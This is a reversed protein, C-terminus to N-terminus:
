WLLGLMGIDRGFGLATRMDFETYLGSKRGMGIETLEAVRVLTGTCAGIAIDFELGCYSRARNRQLRPM